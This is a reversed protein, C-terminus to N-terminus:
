AAMIPGPRALTAAAEAVLQPKAPKAPSAGVEQTVPLVEPRPAPLSVVFRTGGDRPCEARIAGGHLQVIQRTVYLGLGLGGAKGDTGVQYFREFIRERYEAPIGIGYDRVALVVDGGTEEAGAVEIDIREGTGAYRAANTVLNALVQELRLRDATVQVPGDARVHIEFGPALPQLAVASERALEVLDLDSRDLRLSNAQIRSLDLLQDILECLKSSQRDITRLSRALKADDIPVGREAQGALLQAYGRLSTLPTRLEHAAVGLFEDRMRLAAEASATRRLSIYVLAAPVAIAVPTWPSQAATHAALVGMAFLGGSQVAHWGRRHLWVDQPRATTTLGVMVAVSATNAAYLVVAATLAGLVDDLTLGGLMAGGSAARTGDLALGALAVAVTIQATNFVAGAPGRMPKGSSANRRLCLTGQGLVQGLATLLVAAPTGALLLIVLYAPQAFDFKRKEGLTLPFHQAVVSLVALQALAVLTHPPVPVAPVGQRLLWHVATATLVVGSAAAVLWLYARAGPSLPTAAGTSRRM